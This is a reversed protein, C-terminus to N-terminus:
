VIGMGLEIELEEPYEEFYAEWYLCIGEFCFSCIKIIDGFMDIQIIDWEHCEEINKCDPNECKYKIM